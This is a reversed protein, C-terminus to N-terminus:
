RTGGPEAERRGEADGRLEPERRHEVDGLLQAERRQKADRRLEAETRQEADNRQLVDARVGKELRNVWFYSSSRPSPREVSGWPAWSSLGGVGSSVDKCRELAAGMVSSGNLCPRYPSSSLPM